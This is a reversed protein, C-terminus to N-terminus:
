TGKSRNGLTMTIGSSRGGEDCRVASPRVRGGVHGESVNRGEAQTLGAEGVVLAQCEAGAEANRQAKECQGEPGGRAGQCEM